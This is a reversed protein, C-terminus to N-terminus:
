NLLRGSCIEHIMKKRFYQTFQQSFVIPRDRCIFEAYQCVFVGCDSNNEQLPINQADGTNWGTFDFPEGKRFLHEKQLYDKIKDVVVDNNRGLSDYCKITKNTKHIVVIVWHNGKHVPVLIIDKEFIDTKKTWSKVSDYGAECLRKYFFTKMCNVKPLSDDSNSREVLMEMYFNIIEDNLWVPPDWKLTQVHSRTIPIRYKTILVTHTDNGSIWELINQQM